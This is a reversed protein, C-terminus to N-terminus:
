NRSPFLGQLAICYNLVQFPQMNDHGQGAGANGIVDPHMPVLNSPTRYANGTARALVAKHLEVAASEIRERQELEDLGATVRPTGEQILERTVADCGDRRQTLVDFTLLAGSLLNADPRQTADLGWLGARHEFVEEVSSVQGM